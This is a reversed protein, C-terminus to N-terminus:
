LFCHAGAVDLLVPSLESCNQFVNGEHDVVEKKSALFVQVNPSLYGFSQNSKPKSDTRTWRYKIYINFLVSVFISQFQCCENPCLEESILTFTGLNLKWAPVQKSNSIM